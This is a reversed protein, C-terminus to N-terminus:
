RMNRRQVKKVEDFGDKLQVVIWITQSWAMLWGAIHSILFFYVMWKPVVMFPKKM